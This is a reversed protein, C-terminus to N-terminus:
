GGPRHASRQAAERTVAWKLPVGAVYRELEEAMYQGLRRCEPGVSGAIHPTLLVNPLDYLPSAADPPEPETVDLVFQLDARDRAVAVLDAEVVVGGRATNIFTAGPRMAALHRRAILGATERLLPTHVSVVDATAFVEELTALRIDLGAADDPSLFPDHAIVRLDFPRLLELLHRGIVGLSVLGVTSRFNGPPVLPVHFSRAARVTRGAPLVRKMALLITGLAYEAVPVGNASSATTIRVGRDWLAETTWSGIAGAAYFIARLRPAADLFGADVRPPGWGSFMVEVDAMLRPDAALSEPTQPPAVFRVHRAIAGRAEPGYALEYATPSLVYLGNKKSMDGKSASGARM